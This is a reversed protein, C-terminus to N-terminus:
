SAQKLGTRDGELWGKIVQATRAPDQMVLSQVMGAEVNIVDQPAAASRRGAEASGALRHASIVDDLSLNSNAASPSRAPAMLIAQMATARRLLPFVGGFLALLGGLALIANQQVTAMWSEKWWPQTADNFAPAADEFPLDVVTVRPNDSVGIASKVLTDVAKIRPAPIPKGTPNNVLVAVNIGRLKWSPHERFQVTRDIDYNTTRHTDTLPPPPAPPTQNQADNTNAQPNQGQASQQNPPNTATSPTDPKRNSLAGPIGLPADGEAGHARVTEDQSLVHSTGYKVQSEKAQSFDIDADAAVRFNGQGLIPVLLDTILTEYRRNIERIFDLQQPVQQLGDKGNAVLGRGSQDVITVAERALGPVSSAVLGVVGDVQVASLQVGQRLRLMVSASPKPADGLFSTQKPLALTVKAAVVGDVERITRSLAAEIGRTYHVQQVFPSVGLSENDLTAWEDAERKPVGRAALQLRARGADEVPVMIVRGAEAIRYPINLKQLEAITRGGEEGSLGAYLVSYSAGRSWLIAVGVVTVLLAAGALAATRGKGSLVPEIWPLLNQPILERLSAM